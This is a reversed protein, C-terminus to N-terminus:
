FNTLVALLGGTPEHNQLYYRRVNWTGHQPGAPPRGGSVQDLADVNLEENQKDTNM